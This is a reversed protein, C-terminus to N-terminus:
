SEGVKELILRYDRDKLRFGNERLADLKTRVRPIWGRLKAEGYILPTRTVTIGLKRALGVGRQDDMIVRVGAIEQALVIVEAEGADLREVSCVEAVRRDDQVGRVHIWDGLAAEVSSRVPFGRGQEVVEDYVAPPIVVSAFIERLFHFDSLAALYILPSSNSVVPM